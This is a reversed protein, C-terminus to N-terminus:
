VSMVNSFDTAKPLALKVASTKVSTIPNTFADEWQYDNMENKAIEQSIDQSMDIRQRIALDTNQQKKVGYM